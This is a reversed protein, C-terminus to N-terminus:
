KLRSHCVQLIATVVEDISLNDTDISLADDAQRLPSCQRTSDFEDRATIEALITDFDAIQGMEKLEKLRREARVRASATLFIKVKANPLVVTGIDRGDMVVGGSAALKQQKAVLISRLEKVASVPSVFRSILRSRIIMTVDCGNVFVRIRGRSSEDPPLLEIPVPEVARVIAEPNATDIQKDLVIWTAARYMAGTDIYLYGLSRAIMQAVTSKGAGAPGDIAVCLASRSSGGHDTAAPTAPSVKADSDINAQETM